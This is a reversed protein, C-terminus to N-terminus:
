AKTPLTLHTYSVPITSAYKIKEINEESVNVGFSIKEKNWRIREQSAIIEDTSRKMMIIMIDDHNGITHAIHTMGPAQVVQNDPSSLIEIFKQEDYTDYQEEYVSEYDLKESLARCCITTGSRQPGFVVIKRYKALNKIFRDRKIM